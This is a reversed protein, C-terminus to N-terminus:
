ASSPSRVDTSHRSGNQDSTQTSEAVALISTGFPAPLLNACSCELRTLVAAFVAVARGGFGLGLQETGPRNGMRRVAFTPPVLWSFIHHARVPKFGAAVLQSRVLPVTYRRKHGLEIDADSWLWTHAPVTVILRGHTSLARAAERLALLPDSLHEIVDLLCLVEVSGDDFPLREASARVLRLDESSAVLEPSPEVVVKPGSWVLQRTVAGIGAGVDALIGNRDLEGQLARSTWFAKSRFWWHEGHTRLVEAQAADFASGVSARYVVLEDNIPASDDPSRRALVDRDHRDDLTDDERYPPLRRVHRWIRPVAAVMQIGDPLVRVTSRSDHSWTVPIELVRVGTARAIAVIEADWSFGDESSHGLLAAWVAARAAKAGCQTDHIGPTLCTRVLTNYARGLRERLRGERAVLQSGAVARSAIALTGSAAEEILRDVDELATALDVDFFAIISGTARSIGARLAAGKGAHSLRLHRVSVRAAAAQAELDRVTTATGDTSGDDALVLEVKEFDRTWRDDLWGLVVKGSQGLRYEENYIPVVVSLGGARM